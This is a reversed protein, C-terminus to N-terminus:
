GPHLQPTISIIAATMRRENWPVDHYAETLYRSYPDRIWEAPFLAVTKRGAPDATEAAVPQGALASAMARCLDAGALRGLHTTQTPRGNFELFVPPGGDEPLIADIGGFGSYGALEVVRWATELLAPEHGLEIVSAPGFPAPQQHLVTYTFGALMRGNLAAFSVSAARGRVFEQAVLGCDAPLPTGDQTHLAPDMAREIAQRADAVPVVGRGASSYDRKLLLPTGLGALDAAATRGPEIMIQRPTRIGAAAAREVCRSRLAEWPPGGYWAGIARLGWADAGTEPVRDMLRGAGALAVAASEECAIVIDARAEAAARAATIALDDATLSSSFSVGGDLFDSFLLLSNKPCVVHVRFGAAKLAAPMRATGFRYMASSVLLATPM